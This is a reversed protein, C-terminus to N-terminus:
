RSRQQPCPLLIDRSIPEGMLLESVVEPAEDGQDDDAQVGLRATRSLRSSSLDKAVSLLASFVRRMRHSNYVGILVSDAFQQKKRPFIASTL